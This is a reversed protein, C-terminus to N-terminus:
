AGVLWQGVCVCATGVDFESGGGGGGGGGGGSSSGSGPNSSGPQGPRPRSGCATGTQGGDHAGPRTATDFSVCSVTAGRAFTSDYSAEVVYGTGPVLGALEFKGPSAKDFAASRQTWHDDSRYRLHVDDGNRDTVTVEVVVTFATIADAALATVEPPPTEFQARQVGPDDFDDNLTAEVEQEAGSQLGTLHFIASSTTTTEPTEDVWDGDGYRYRLHITQEQNAPADLAVVDSDSAREHLTVVDSKSAVEDSVLLAGGTGANAIFVTVEAGSPGEPEILIDSVAPDTGLTSFRTTRVTGPAFASDLSARVEYLRESELGSLEIQVSERSTQASLAPDPSWSEGSLRHQLYVTLETRSPNVLDIDVIAATEGPRHVTARSVRRYDNASIDVVVPTTKLTVESDTPSSGTTVEAAGVTFSEDGEEENDDVVTIATARSARWRFDTVSDDPDPDIDIRRFDALAFRLTAGTVASFDDGATASVDTTSLQVSGAGERPEEDADTTIVVRATVTGGEAVPNPSLDLVAQAAPFDDDDVTHTASPSDPAVSYDASADITAAVESHQEWDDDDVTPVELTATSQGQPVDVTQTRAFEADPPLMASTESLTLTVDLGNADEVDGDLTVTFTLADGEVAGSTETVSLSAEPPSRTLTLEYSLTTIQDIATVVINVEVAASVPLDVQFGARNADADDLANGGSDAFSFTEGTNLTEPMLTVQSHGFGVDATYTTTTSIFTPSLEGGTLGIAQLGPRNAQDNPAIDVPASIDADDFHVNADTAAAGTTVATLSVTFRETEESASDDLTAIAVDKSACFTQAPCGNTGDGEIFDSQAFALAGTADTLARYDNGGTAPAGNGSGDPDPGDATSVLLTGADENPQELRETTITVTATVSQGEDITDSSVSLVADADPFDNDSVATTVTLPGSTSYAADNAVLTVSVTSSANWASDDTTPITLVFETQDAQIFRTASTIELSDEVTDGDESVSLLFGTPEDTSANRRITAVVSAGETAQDAAVRITLEPPERTVTVSYVRQTGDEATVRVAVELPADPALETQVGDATDDLDSLKPTNADIDGSGDLM